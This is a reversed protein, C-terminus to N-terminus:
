EFQCGEVIKWQGETSTGEEGDTKEERVLTWRIKIVQSPQGLVTHWTEVQAKILRTSPTAELTAQTKVEPQDLAQLDTVGQTDAEGFARIESETEDPPGYSVLKVCVDKASLAFYQGICGTTRSKQADATLLSSSLGPDRNFTQEFAMVIKEPYPSVAVDAPIGHAFGICSSVPQVLQQAQNLYGGLWKDPEYVTIRALQSRDNMRETVTVKNTEIDVRFTSEFMGVCEYWEGSSRPQNPVVLVEHPDTRKRLESPINDNWRFISVRNVFGSTGMSTVVVEGPDPDSTSMTPSIVNQLRVSVKGTGEGLYTWGPAQLHYPYIIPLKPERRAIDYIACRIPAFAKNEPNDFTYCIAIEDEQDGDADIRDATDIVWSPPLTITLDLDTRPRQLTRACGPLLIACSLILTTLALKCWTPAAWRTGDSHAPDAQDPTTSSKNM